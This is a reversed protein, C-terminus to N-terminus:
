RNVRWRLLNLVLFELLVLLEELSPLDILLGLPLHLLRGDLVLIEVLGLADPRAVKLHDSLLRLGRELLAQRLVPHVM